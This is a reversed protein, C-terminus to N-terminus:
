RKLKQRYIKGEGYTWYSYAYGEGYYRDKITANSNRLVNYAQTWKEAINNAKYAVEYEGIKAGHQVEFKLINFTEELVASKAEKPKQPQAQTEMISTGTLWGDILGEVSAKAIEVDHEDEISVEIEYYRKIWEGAKENGTTKGKGVTLKTMKFSM